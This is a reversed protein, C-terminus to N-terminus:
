LNGQRLNVRPQFRWAEQKERFCLVVPLLQSRKKLGALHAARLHMIRTNGGQASMVAHGLQPCGVPVEASEWPQFDPIGKCM